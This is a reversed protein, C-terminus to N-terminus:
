THRRRHENLDGKRIFSKDCEICKYPKEGTHIRQHGNLNDKRNFRKYCFSCVYPKEGTHTRRHTILHTKQFFSKECDTCAYPRVGTHTRIHRILEGKLSYSKECQNCVYPKQIQQTNQPCNLFQSHRLNTSCETNAECYGGKPQGQDISFQVPNSLDSECQPAKEEILQQTSKSWVHIKSKTGKYSSHLEKGIAKRPIAQSGSSKQTCKISNVVNRQKNMNGTDASRSNIDILGEHDVQDGPYPEAEEKIHVLILKPSDPHGSSPEHSGEGGGADSHGIPSMASADENRLCFDADLFPFGASPNCDIRARHQHNMSLAEQEDTPCYTMGPSPLHNSQGPIVDLDEVFGARSEGEKTLATDPNTFQYETGLCHNQEAERPIRLCQKRKRNIKIPEDHETHSDGPSHRINYRRRLDPNDMSPPVPKEKPRISFVSTAILPGLSVFAQHIEQMVSQYLEKQWEHLLKWEEDSFYATVDLFTVPAPAPRQQRHM